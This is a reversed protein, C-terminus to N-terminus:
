KVWGEKNMKHEIMQRVSDAMSHDYIGKKTLKDCLKKHIENAFKRTDDSM